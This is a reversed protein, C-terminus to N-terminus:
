LLPVLLGQHLWSALLRNVLGQHLLLRKVLGHHLREAMGHLLWEQHLLALVRSPLLLHDGQHLQGGGWGGELM